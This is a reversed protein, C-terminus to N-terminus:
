LDLDPEPPDLYGDAAAARLADAPGNVPRGLDRYRACIRNLYTVVTSMAIPPDM